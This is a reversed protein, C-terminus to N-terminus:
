SAPKPTLTGSTAISIYTLRRESEAGERTGEGRMNREESARNGTKDKIQCM